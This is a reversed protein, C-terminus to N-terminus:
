KYLKSKVKDYFGSLCSREAIYKRLVQLTIIMFLQYRIIQSKKMFRNVIQIHEQKDRKSNAKSESFGGGEYDAIVVELYCPDIEFNFYSRLFFEYDARIKYYLEFGKKEFLSSEFVCAQHCPINRFCTFDDIKKPVHIVTDARRFFANGYYIKRGPNKTIGAKILKLSDKNYFYDGCNLFYLYEGTSFKVAQNMADYIGTDKQSFKKIKPNEPLTELSGDKSLGDKVIVEYDAETQTMISEITQSLKEGPNLCVVIISFMPKDQNMRLREIV